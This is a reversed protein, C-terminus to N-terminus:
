RVRLVAPAGVALEHTLGDQRYRLRVGSLRVRGGAATRVGVAITAKTHPQMVFGDLRRFASKPSPWHDEIAPFYGRRAEFGLVRVGRPVDLTLARLTVRDPGTNRVLVWAALARGPKVASQRQVTEDRLSGPNDPLWAWLSGGVAMVVGAAVLRPSM